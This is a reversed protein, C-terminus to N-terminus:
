AYEFQALLAVFEQEDLVAVGLAQAKALKSGAGPGAVVADTNASVSGSVKAGLGQLRAKAQDRTMTELTGTLVYTKGALPLETAGRAPQDPWSVGAALLQEITERNHPQQFFTVIHDAAIPGIDPVEILQEVTAAMLDTINGFYNALNLATAEGVERIGLAYIFRNLSTHKSSALAQLLNDASKDGMRELLSLQERALGFLDAVTEILGADVLADVLKDGLGEIDLAKRSAFHKIAEKRQAACYLGGSCRVVAETEVKQVRSGCVPCVPHQELINYARKRRGGKRRVVRVVEPIVDGARRVIM